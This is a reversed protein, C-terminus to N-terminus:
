LLVYRRAHEPALINRTKLLIYCLYFCKFLLFSLFKTAFLKTQLQDLLVYNTSTELVRIGKTVVPIFSNSLWSWYWPWRYKPRLSRTQQNEEQRTKSCSMLSMHFFFTKPDLFAFAMNRPSPCHKRGCMSSNNSFRWSSFWGAVTLGFASTELETRWAIFSQYKFKLREALLMWQFGFTPFVSNQFRFLKSINLSSNVKSKIPRLKM